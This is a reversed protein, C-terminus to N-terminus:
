WHSRGRRVYQESPSQQSSQEGTGKKKVLYTVAAYRSNINILIRRGVNDALLKRRIIFDSFLSRLWPMSVISCTIVGRTKHFLTWELDKSLIIDIVEDKIIRKIPARKIFEFIDPYMEQKKM